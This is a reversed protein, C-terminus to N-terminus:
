PERRQGRTGIVRSIARALQMQGFPKALRLLDEATGPPFEAYGTALIVPLDRREERIADTLQTGTMFPMAQDTILLDVTKECRLVNLAQEASLATFVKHGLDELMAATNTLVLHDDDVALVTLPHTVPCSESPTLKALSPQLATTAAPLWIEATTGAGKQSKLILRGGSQEAVGHVMPLGLGTGKGVGKTTFFPEKARDLTAQDMGEGTDQVSLCIYRGPALGVAAQEVIAEQRAAIIIAGGNPMADRANVVLNLLALELQNADAQVPELALPFRVEIPASPGISRQLLDTMGRVLALVDVPELELEQRRAFALMRQTLSTGRQAALIANDILSAIKPDAPLRKQVLELSGLIAMLLNNFDHAVGGTLQGIADLKQSQFLAERALELARQADRRETIDRTIKAFGLVAGSEDRIADMVVNAWFRSGDKRVRWGEKEFRGERYATELARRPEGTALDEQTYFRSFHEGIIEDPLYGKIRQAGQNWTAVRGDLDLMYISYDTVGHVLLKFMHETRRLAAEAARRETLDRTVKAFGVLKGSQRIPDIVVHAWFRSGDKKLRWGEAEFKGERASTELARAPLGAKRDEETYFTSFHRGLIESEEYGKFRRAGTNWSTVVGDRDLMYIAYDTVADLLLRFRGEEAESGSLREDQNM